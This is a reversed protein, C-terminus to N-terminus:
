AAAGGGAEGDAEASAPHDVFTLRSELGALEFLRQVHDPGRVVTLRYGDRDSALQAEILLRIGSSDLFTVERLDIVIARAEGQVAELERRVAEATGLDVDGAPAVVVAGGELRRDVRFRPREDDHQM